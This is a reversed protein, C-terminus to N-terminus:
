DAQADDTVDQALRWLWGGNTGATSDQARDIQEKSILMYGAPECGHSTDAYVLGCTACYISGQTAKIPFWRETRISRYFWRPTKDLAYEFVPKFDHRQSYPLNSDEVCKLMTLRRFPQFWILNQDSRANTPSLALVICLLLCNTILGATM